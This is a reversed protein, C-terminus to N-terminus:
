IQVTGEYETLDCDPQEMTELMAAKLEQAEKSKIGVAKNYPVSMQTDPFKRLKLTVGDRNVSDRKPLPNFTLSVERTRWQGYAPKTGTNNARKYKGTKPSLSISSKAGCFRSVNGVTAVAKEADHADFYEGDGNKGGDEWADMILKWSELVVSRGVGRARVQKIEEKTPELPFYIGPRAIFVGKPADKREWGGLPKGSQGTGTPLPEPLKMGRERTLIGDTAFM